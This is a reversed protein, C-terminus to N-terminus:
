KLISIHANLLWQPLKKSCATNRGGIVGALNIIENKSNQFVLNNNKLNITKDLLTVFSHEEDILNLSLEDDIEKADYCHTPQGTEYMIFNSIDTFFNNKKIDLDKFYHNLAGQYESPITDIEIKLFLHIPM